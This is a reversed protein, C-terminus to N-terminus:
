KINRKHLFHLILSFLILLSFASIIIVAAAIKNPAKVYLNGGGGILPEDSDTYQIAEGFNEYLIDMVEQPRYLKGNELGTFDPRISIPILWEKYNEKIYVFLTRYLVSEVVKCNQIDTIGSQNVTDIIEQKVITSNKYGELTLCSKTQDALFYNGDKQFRIIDYNTKPVMWVYDDSIIHGINKTKRYVSIIDPNTFHYKKYAESFNVTNTNGVLFDDENVAYSKLQTMEEGTVDPGEFMFYDITQANCLSSFALVVFLVISTIRKKM